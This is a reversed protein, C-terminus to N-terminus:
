GIEILLTDGPSTYLKTKHILHDTKLKTLGGGVVVMVKTFNFITICM